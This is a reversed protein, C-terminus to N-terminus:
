HYSDTARIEARRRRCRRALATAKKSLEIETPNGITELYLASRAAFRLSFIGDFNKQTTNDALHEHTEILCIPRECTILTDVLGWIRPPPPPFEVSVQSREGLLVLPPNPYIQNHLTSLTQKWSYTM